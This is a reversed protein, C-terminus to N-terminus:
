ERKEDDVPVVGDPDDVGHHDDVADGQHQDVRGLAGQERHHQGRLQALLDVADPQGHLFAALEAGRQEAGSQEGDEAAPDDGSEVRGREHQGCGDGGTQAEVFWGRRRRLVM